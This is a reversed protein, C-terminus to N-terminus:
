GKESLGDHLFKIIQPFDDGNPNHNVFIWVAYARWGEGYVRVLAHNVETPVRVEWYRNPDAIITQQAMVGGKLTFIFGSGKWLFLLVV